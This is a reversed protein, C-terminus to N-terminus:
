KLALMLTSIIKKWKTKYCILWKLNNLALDVNYIYSKYCMKNIVNKCLVLSIKQLYKFSELYQKTDSVIWNFM